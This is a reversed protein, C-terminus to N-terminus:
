GPGRGLVVRGGAGPLRCPCRCPGDWGAAGRGARGARPARRPPLSVARACTARLDRCGSSRRPRALMCGSPASPSRLAVGRGRRTEPWGRTRPAPRAPISSGPAGGRRGPPAGSVRRRGECAAPTASSLFRLSSAEGTRAECSADSSSSALRRCSSSFLPKGLIMEVRRDSFACSRCAACWTPAPAPLRARAGWASSARQQRLRGGQGGPAGLPGVAGGGSSGGGGCNSDAAARSGGLRLCLGSCCGSDAGQEGESSRRARL